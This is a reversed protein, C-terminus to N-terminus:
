FGSDFVQLSKLVGFCVSGLLGAQKTPKKMAEGYWDGRRLEALELMWVSREGTEHTSACFDLLM